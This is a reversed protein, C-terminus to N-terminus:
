KDSRLEPPFIGRAVELAQGELRGLQDRAREELRAFDFGRLRPSSQSVAMLTRWLSKKGNIGLMLSELSQMLALNPESSDGLRLKTKSVKEAVWAGAKRLSSEQIGLREMLRKLEEQDSKIDKRLEELPSSLPQGQHADIMSDLMDLAGVSGALHDNLYTSLDKM